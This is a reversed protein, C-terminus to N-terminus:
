LETVVSDGQIIFVRDFCHSIDLQGWAARYAESDALWYENLLALWVPSKTPLKRCIQDKVRVREELTCRANLLIDASSNRNAIIGHIKKDARDEAVVTVSVKVGEIMQEVEYGPIPRLIVEEILKSLAKKFSRGDSTPLHMCVVISTSDSIRSGFEQNLRAILQVGYSDHSERNGPSGDANLVVQTLKTVEVAIRSGGQQEFYFDPPDEGDFSRFASTGGLFSLLADRVFEEDERM